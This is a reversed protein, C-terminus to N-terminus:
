GRAAAAWISVIQDKSATLAPGMYPRPKIPGRGKELRGPVDGSFVRNPGILADHLAPSYKFVIGRKLIGTRSRPPENAKSPAFPRKPKPGKGRRFYSMRINYKMRQHKTMEGPKLRRAKRISRGAVTRVYAGSQLMARRETKDLQRIVAPADFFMKSCEFSFM